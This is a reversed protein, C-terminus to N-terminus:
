KGLHDFPDKFLELSAEGEIEMEPLGAFTLTREV